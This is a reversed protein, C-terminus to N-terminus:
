QTAQQRQQKRFAGLMAEVIEIMEAPVFIPKGKKDKKPRGMKTNESM